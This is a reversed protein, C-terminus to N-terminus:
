LSGLLVGWGLGFVVLFVCLLVFVTVCDPSIKELKKDAVNREFAAILEEMRPSGDFGVFTLMAMKASFLGGVLISAAASEGEKVIFQWVSYSSFIATKSVKIPPGMSPPKEEFSINMQRLSQRVGELATERTVNGVSLSPPRLAMSCGFMLFMFGFCIDQMLYDAQFTGTLLGEVSWLPALFLFPLSIQWGKSPVFFPTRRAMAIGLYVLIVILLLFRLGMVIM